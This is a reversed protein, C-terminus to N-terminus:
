LMQFNYYKPTVIKCIFTHNYNMKIFQYLKETYNEFKKRFLYFFTMFIYYFKYWMYFRVNVFIQFYILLGILSMFININDVFNVIYKNTFKMFPFYYSRIYAYSIKFNDCKICESEFSESEKM